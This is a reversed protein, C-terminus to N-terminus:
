KTFPPGLKRLKRLLNPKVVLAKEISEILVLEQNYPPFPMGEMNYVYVNGEIDASVLRNGDATFEVMVLRVNKPSITISTPTHIKRRIDWICIENNVITVIITSHTPCWATYRVCAMSTSLTILPETFGEVWIRTCWDAGCTLFIKPCFPSFMMSYIPGDHALFSEIHQYLYNTSCKYICGEDSGVFYIASSTPHKRLVLAGPNRNILTDSVICHSTRPVGPLTGEIRYIRMITTSMFDEVYRYCFIHGDQDCTYIQEEYNFQEDGAWWQVQWQPSCSPSTIRESRRIVNLYNASVDIVKIHGDYFGIALLNPRDRSWDLDSIPIDFPYWRGPLTPNKASWILLLGDKIESHPLAGYGVALINKNVYSWRFSSVPRGNSMEFNHEWLLDLSYTFELDLSCPDQKILGIFRKQANIFINNSIIREMVRVANVFNAKQFIEAVEEEMMRAKKQAEILPLKDKLEEAQWLETMSTRTHAVLIGNEETLLEPAAYTDHMIWNNVFIGQNRRKSRGLYTGRTKTLVQITQTESDVLKRNSGAGITKFDYMENELKIATGDPTRLDGTYPLMEFIFFTETERLTIKVTEPRSPFINPDISPLYFQTPAPDETDYIQSEYMQTSWFSEYQADDVTMMSAPFSATRVIASSSKKLSSIASSSSLQGASGVRTLGITELATIQREDISSYTPHTLLRPTVDVNEIIVRIGQRQQLLISAVNKGITRRQKGMMSMKLKSSAPSEFKGSSVMQPSVLEESKAM